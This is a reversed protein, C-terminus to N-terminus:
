VGKYAKINREGRKTVIQNRTIKDKIGRGSPIEV